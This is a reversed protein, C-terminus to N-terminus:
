LVDHKGCLLCSSPNSQNEKNRYITLITVQSYKKLMNLLFIFVSRNFWCQLCKLRVKKAHSFLISQSIFHLWAYILTNKHVTQGGATTVTACRCSASASLHGATPSCDGATVDTAWGDAGCVYLVHESSDRGESSWCRSVAPSVVARSCENQM